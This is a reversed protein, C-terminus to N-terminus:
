YELGKFGTIMETGQIAGTIKPMLVIKRKSITIIKGNTEHM